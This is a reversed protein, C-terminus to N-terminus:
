YSVVPVGVTVLMARQDEPIRWAAVTEPNARTVHEAGAWNAIDEFTLM